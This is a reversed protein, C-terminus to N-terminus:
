EGELWDLDGEDVGNDPRRHRCSRGKDDEYVYDELDPDPADDSLYDDPSSPACEPRQWRLDIAQGIAARFKDCYLNIFSETALGIAKADDQGETLWHAGKLYEKWTEVDHVEVSVM